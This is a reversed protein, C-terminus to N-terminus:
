DIVQTSCHGVVNQTKGRIKHNVKWLVRQGAAYRHIYTLLFIYICSRESFLKVPPIGSVIPSHWFDLIGRGLCSNRELHKAQKKTKELLDEISPYKQFYCSQYFEWPNLFVEKKTTNSDKMCCDLPVLVMCLRKKSCMHLMLPQFYQAKHRRVFIILKWWTGDFYRFLVLFIIM